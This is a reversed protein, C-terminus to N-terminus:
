RRSARRACRSPPTCAATTSSSGRASATPAALGPDGGQAPRRARERGGREYTSYLYPTTRRSSPPAPTSGSTSRAPHGLRRPGRALTARPATSCAARHARRLLRLAQGPAAAGEAGLRPGLLRARGGAGRDRRDRAPVLPRHALAESVEEVTWGQRLAAFVAFLREWNPTALRRRLRVRTAVDRRERAAPSGDLELAALGKM